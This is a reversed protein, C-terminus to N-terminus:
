VCCTVLSTFRYNKPDFNSVKKFLPKLKTIKCQNPFLHQKISLNVINCLPLASVEAGDKLFKSSIEELGLTKSSELYALIKQITEMAANCLKFNHCSKEINMHYQRM